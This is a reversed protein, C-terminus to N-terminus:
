QFSSLLSSTTYTPFNKTSYPYLTNFNHLCFTSPFSSPQIDDHNVPFYDMLRLDVAQMKYRRSVECRQFGPLFGSFYLQNELFIKGRNGLPSFSSVRILFADLLEVALM